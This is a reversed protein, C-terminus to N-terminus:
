KLWRQCLCLCLGLVCVCVFVLDYRLVHSRTRVRAITGARKWSKGRESARREFSREVGVSNLLGCVHTREWVGNQQRPIGPPGADVVGVDALVAAARRRLMLRCRSITRQTCADAYRSREACRTHTCTLLQAAHAFGAHMPRAHLDLAVTRRCVFPHSHTITVANPETQSHALGGSSLSHSGVPRGHGMPHGIPYIIHGTGLAFNVNVASHQKCESCPYLILEAATTVLPVHSHTHMHSHFAHRGTHAAGCISCSM